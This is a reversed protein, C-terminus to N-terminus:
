RRDRLRALAPNVAGCSLRCIDSGRDRHCLDGGPDGNSRSRPRKQLPRRLRPRKSPLRLPLAGGGGCAALIMSLVLLVSLFKFGRM